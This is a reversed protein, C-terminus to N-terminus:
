ASVAEAAPVVALLERLAAAAVEFTNALAAMEALDASVRLTDQGTGFVLYAYPDLATESMWPEPLGRGYGAVFVELVEGAEVEHTVRTRM